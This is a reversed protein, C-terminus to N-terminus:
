FLFSTNRLIQSKYNTDETVSKGEMAAAPSLKIKTHAAAHANLDTM